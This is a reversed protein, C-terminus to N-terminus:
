HQIRASYNSYILGLLHVRNWSASGLIKTLVFVLGHITFCSFVIVVDLNWYTAVDM